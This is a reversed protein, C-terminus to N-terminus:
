MREPASMGLLALGNALVIRVARALALRARTLAADDSLIRHRMGDQLYPNWLGALERLYYASTTRSARQRGRAAVM